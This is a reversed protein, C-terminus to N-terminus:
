NAGTRSLKPKLHDPLEPERGILDAFLHDVNTEGQGILALAQLADGIRAADQASLVERAADLFVLVWTGVPQEGVLAMDVERSEGNGLCLAYRSRLGAVQMPIGICM